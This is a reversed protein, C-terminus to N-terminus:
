VSDVNRDKTKFHYSFQTLLYIGLKYCAQDIVPLGSEIYNPTRQFKFKIRSQIFTFLILDLNCEKSFNAISFFSELKKQTTHKVKYRNM